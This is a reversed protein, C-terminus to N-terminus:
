AAPKIRIAFYTVDDELPSDKRHAKIKSQIKESFTDLTESELAEIAANLYRREGWSKGSQDKLEPIGDTYFLVVDGDNLQASAQNYQSDVAHGLRPGNSQDLLEVDARALPRKNRLIFPFEHSANSYHIEGTKINIAALFFTMMMKGKSTGHIATNVLQMAQLPSIEVLNEIISAASRAASTILAAAAGHGTADGIWLFVYDGMQCYHWWDGGCESAPEYYGSIEVRGFTASRPPFLTEQVTQATKLENQMRAKEGSDELLRSVEKAMQNFSESLGGVEDNSTVPVQIDFQGHAVSRSAEYLNSLTATMGRSAFISIIFTASLLMIFFYISKILLEQGARLAASKKVLSVVKLGAIGVKSYSALISAEGKGYEQTGEPIESSRADNFYDLNTQTNATIFDEDPRFEIANDDGVLYSTFTSSSSFVDLIQQSVGIFFVISNKKAISLEDEESLVVEKETQDKQTSPIETQNKSEGSLAILLFPSNKKMAKIVVGENKAKAVLTNILDRNQDLYVDLESDKKLVEGPEYFGRDNRRFFSIYSIKEIEFFLDKGQSSIKDVTPDYKAVIPLISTTLSKLESHVQAAMTRSLTVSADYVYAIKDKEFLQTAYVLYIGLTVLPISTLTLLLKYKLSLGRRIETSMM